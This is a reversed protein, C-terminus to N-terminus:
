IGNPLLNLSILDQQISTLSLMGGKRLDYARQAAERSAGAHAVAYDIAAEPGYSTYIRKMRKKHNVLQYGIIKVRKSGKKLARKIPKNERVVPITLCIANIRKSAKGNM